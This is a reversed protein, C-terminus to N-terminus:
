EVPAATVTQRSHGAIISKMYDREDKSLVKEAARCFGKLGFEVGSMGILALLVAGWQVGMAGILGGGLLLIVGEVLYAIWRRITTWLAQNKERDRYKRQEKRAHGHLNENVIPVELPKRQLRVLASLSAKLNLSDLIPDLEMYQFCGWTLFAAIPAAPGVSALSASWAAVNIGASLLTVGGYCLMGFRHSAIWQGAERLGILFDDLDINGDSNKDLKDFISKRKGNSDRNKAADPGTNAGATAETKAGTEAPASRTRKQATTKFAM